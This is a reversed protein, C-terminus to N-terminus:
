VLQNTYVEGSDETTEPESLALFPTRSHSSAGRISGVSYKGQTLPTKTWEKEFGYRGTLSHITFDMHPLDLTMSLAKELHAPQNGTQILASR